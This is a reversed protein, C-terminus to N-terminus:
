PLVHPTPGFPLVNPTLGLRRVDAVAQEWSAVTHTVGALEYVAEGTRLPVIDVTTM